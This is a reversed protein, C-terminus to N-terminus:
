GNQTRQLADSIFVRFSDTVVKRRRCRQEEALPEIGESNRRFRFLGINPTKKIVNWNGCIILIM